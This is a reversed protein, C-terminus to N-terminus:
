ATTRGEQSGSANRSLLQLRALNKYATGVSCRMARAIKRCGWGRARLDRLVTEDLVVPPRGWTGGEAKVRQRAAKVRESKRRSEMDAFWGALFIMLDGMPGETDAWPERCSVLRVGAARLSKVLPLLEDTRAIRDLAWVILVAGRLRGAQADRLLRERELLRPKMTWASGVDRYDHASAIELGLEQAKKLTDADQNEIKESPDSVRRYRAADSM